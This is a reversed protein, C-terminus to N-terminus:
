RSTSAATATSCPRTRDTRARPGEQPHHVHAGPHRGQEDFFVQKTEYRRLTSTSRRAPAFLTSEGTEVDYRYIATPTPSTTFSYFTEPDDAHGGFGGVSGMGPLEVERVPSGDTDFIRVVSHADKLYEAIFHGGVLAVSDLAEEAEPLVVFQSGVKKRGADVGIVNGKPADKNTGFFLTNGRNGIFDYRADWQDFLPIVKAEKTDLRIYSVDNADYGEWLTIILYLGDESVVGYPNKMTDGPVSYVHEDDDQSTGIRHYYLSM